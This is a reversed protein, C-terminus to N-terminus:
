DEFMVKAPDVDMMKCLKELHTLHDKLERMKACQNLSRQMLEYASKENPHKRSQMRKIESELWNKNAVVTDLYSQICDQLRKM